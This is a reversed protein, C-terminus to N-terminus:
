ERTVDILAELKDEDGELKGGPLSWRQYKKSYLLLVKGRKLVLAKIAKVVPKKSFMFIM